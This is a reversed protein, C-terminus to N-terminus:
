ALELTTVISVETVNSKVRWFPHRCSLERGPSKFGSARNRSRPSYQGEPVDRVCSNGCLSACDFQFNQSFHIAVHRLATSLVCTSTCPLRM